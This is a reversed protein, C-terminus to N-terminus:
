KRNALVDKYDTLAKCGYKRASAESKEADTDVVAELEALPYNALANAHLSHIVGCGIIAAKYIKLIGV